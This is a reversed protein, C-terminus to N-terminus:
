PPTSGGKTVNAIVIGDNLMDAEILAMGKLAADVLYKPADASSKVVISISDGEVMFKISSWEGNERTM